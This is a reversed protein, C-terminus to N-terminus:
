SERNVNKTNVKWSKKKEITSLRNKNNGKQVKWDSWDDARKRKRPFFLRSRTKVKSHLQWDEFLLTGSKKGAKRRTGLYIIMIHFILWTNKKTKKLFSKNKKFPNKEVFVGFRSLFLLVIAIDNYLIYLRTIADKVYSKFYSSSRDTRGGFLLVLFFLESTAPLCKIYAVLFVGVAHRPLIRPRGEM